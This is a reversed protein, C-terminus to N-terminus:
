NQRFVVFQFHQQAADVPLAYQDKFGVSVKVPLHYSRPSGILSTWRNKNEENRVPTFVLVERIADVADPYVGELPYGDFYLILKAPDFKEKGQKIANSLGKVEITIKEGMTAQEPRVAMVKLPAESNMTSFQPAPPTAQSPVPLPQPIAQAGAPLSIFTLAFGVLFNGIRKVISHMRFIQM